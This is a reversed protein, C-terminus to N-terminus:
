FLANDTQTVNIRLGKRRGLRVHVADLEGRKVRQLVTQRSVGLAHTAELMPLYGDPAHEVFRARLEDTLRIQWPAGPTTQEAPIFGDNVWRHVTSAAVGLERAAEAVSLPGPGAGATSTDDPQHVPIQWHTRLSSVISATFSQGRASRRGQRNLIGAITADPHHVALRRVLALTDEDTRITPPAQRPLAVTLESLAGGRWRLTLQARKAEREVGIIM